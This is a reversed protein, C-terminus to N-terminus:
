HFPDPGMPTDERKEWSTDPNARVMAVGIITLVVIVGCAILFWFFM